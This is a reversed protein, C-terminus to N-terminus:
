DWTIQPLAQSITAAWVVVNAEMTDIHSVPTGLQLVRAPAHSGAAGEIAVSFLPRGENVEHLTRAVHGMDNEARVTAMTYDPDLAALLRGALYWDTQSPGIDLFVLATEQNERATRRLERASQATLVLNSGGLEASHPGAATIDREQIGLQNAMIKATTHGTTGIGLVVVISGADPWFKPPKPVNRMVESLTYLTRDAPLQELIRRPVGCNALELLTAGDTRTVHRNSRTQPAQPAQPADSYPPHPTTEAPHPTNIGQSALHAHTEQALARATRLVEDFERERPTPEPQTQAQPWTVPKIHPENETEIHKEPMLIEFPAPRIDRQQPLEPTAFPTNTIREPEAPIHPERVRSYMATTRATGHNDYTSDTASTAQAPTSGGVFGDASDAAALMAELSGAPASTSQRRNPQNTHDPATGPISTFTSDPYPAPTRKTPAVAPRGANTGGPKSNSSNSRAPQAALQSGPASLALGTDIDALSEPVDVTVVVYERAFFGGIGGSRLKEAEVVHAASGFSSEVKKLVEEISNGELRLRKRSM